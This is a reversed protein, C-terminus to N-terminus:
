ALLSAGPLGSKAYFRVIVYMLVFGGFAVLYHKMLDHYRSRVAIYLIDGTFTIDPPAPM